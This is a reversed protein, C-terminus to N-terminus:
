DASITVVLKKTITYQRRLPATTKIVSSRQEVFLILKYHSARGISLYLTKM